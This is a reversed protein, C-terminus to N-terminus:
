GTATPRDDIQRGRFSTSTGEVLKVTVLDGPRASSTFNVPKHARTRGMVERTGDADAVSLEGSQKSAREVLVEATQGVLSQNRRKGLRQVLEVLRAMREQAVEPAIRGPLTAAVTQRRPSYIFTFAGDYDCEEVLQMTQEFDSETEGPFGVILDTTLGLSPVASRLRRVLDLYGRRTYGRRMAALVADSGSQVPLHLHECVPNHGALLDILEDSVDKPHSTM